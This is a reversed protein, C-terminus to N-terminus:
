RCQAMQLTQLHPFSLFANTPDMHGNESLYYQLKHYKNASSGDTGIVPCEHGQSVGKRSEESGEAVGGWVAVRVSVLLLQQIDKSGCPSPSIPM